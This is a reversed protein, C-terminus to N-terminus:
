SAKPPENGQDKKSTDTKQGYGPHLQDSAGGAKRLDSKERVEDVTMWPDQGGAGLAKAFFEAQSQLSGRLLARENFKAYFRDREEENLLVRAIEQEWSVFWPPVTVDIRRGDGEPRTSYRCTVRWLFKEIPDFEIQRLTAMFNQPHSTGQYPIVGSAYIDYQTTAPNNTKVIFSRELDGGGLQLINGKRGKAEEIVDIVAM